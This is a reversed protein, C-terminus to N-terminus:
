HDGAPAGDTEGRGGGGGACSKKVRPPRIRKTATPFPVRSGNVYLVPKYKDPVDEHMVPSNKYRELHADLGQLPEGWSVECVKQSALKWNSFGEFHVKVKEAVDNSVLNVFAYGLGAMRHFDMPLYVFDYQAKFGETDLLELVMERNYNNPINRMMVTTNAVPAASSSASQQPAGASVKHPGNKPRPAATRSNNAKPNQPPLWQPEPIMIPAGGFGYGGFGGFGGFDMGLGDDRHMTPGMMPSATSVSSRAQQAAMAAQAAAQKLQAARAELETAIAEHEAASGGFFPPIGLPGAGWPGAGPPMGCYMSPHQPYFAGPPPVEDGGAFGGHGHFSSFSATKWSNMDAAGFDLGPMMSLPSGDPRDDEGDSAGGDPSCGPPMKNAGEPLPWTAREQAGVPEWNPQGFASFHMLTPPELKVVATKKDGGDKRTKPDKAASDM